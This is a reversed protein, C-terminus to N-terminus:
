NQFSENREWAFKPYTLAIRPARHRFNTFVSDIPIVGLKDFRFFVNAPRPTASSANSSTGNKTFFKPVPGHIKQSHKQHFLPLFNSILLCVGCKWFKWVCWADNMLILCFFNAQQTGLSIEGAGTAAFTGRNDHVDGLSPAFTLAHKSDAAVQDFKITQWGSPIYVFQPENKPAWHWEFSSKLMTLKSSLSEFFCPFAYTSWPLLLIPFYHLTNLFCHFYKM